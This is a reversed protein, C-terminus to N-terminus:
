QKVQRASRRQDGAGTPANTQGQSPPQGLVPRVHGQHRSRGALQLFGLPSDLRLGPTPRPGKREIQAIEATDLAQKVPHHGGGAPHVDEHIAGARGNAFRGLAARQLGEVAHHVHVELRRQQQALGEAPVALLHALRAPDDVDARQGTM